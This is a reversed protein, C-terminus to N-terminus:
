KRRRFWVGCAIAGTLCLAMTGPEPVPAVQLEFGYDYSGTSLEQVWFAYQGAPLPPIFGSSGNAPTGIKALVNHNIDNPSYHIWGLLGAASAANTPLTVQSGKEIALFGVSRTGGATTGPLITLGMLSYHEPITVVFYDRDVVGLDNRGTTGYVINSGAALTGLDTPATGTNGLDGDSSEDHIVGANVASGTISLLLAAISFFKRLM